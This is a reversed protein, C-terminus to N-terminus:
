VPETANIIWVKNWELIWVGLGLYPPIQNLTHLLFYSDRRRHNFGGLVQLELPRSPATKMCVAATYDWKFSHVLFDYISTHMETEESLHGQSRALRSTAAAIEAGENLILCSVQANVKFELSSLYRQLGRLLM